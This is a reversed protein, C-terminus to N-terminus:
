TADNKMSMSTRYGYIRNIGKPPSERMHYYAIIPIVSIVLSAVLQTIQTQM